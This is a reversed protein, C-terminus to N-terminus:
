RAGQQKERGPRSVAVVTTGKIQNNGADDFGVIEAILVEELIRKQIGCGMLVICM